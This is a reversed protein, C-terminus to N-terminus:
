GSLLTLVGDVEGLGEIGINGLADVDEGIDELVGLELLRGDLTLAVHDETLGLLDLLLDLFNNEVVKVGGSELALGQAAGDETGALVDTVNGAGLEGVVDLAVVSGVAHDQDSRTTNRMLLEDLKSVLVERTQRGLTGLVLGVNEGLLLGVENARVDTDAIVGEASGVNGEGNLTDAPVVVVVESSKNGLSNDAVVVLSHAVSRMLAALKATEDVLVLEGVAEHAERRAVAVGTEPTDVEGGVLNGADVIENVEGDAFPHAQAGVDGRGLNLAGLGLQLSGDKQGEVAGSGDSLVNTALEDGGAAAHGRSLNLAHNIGDRLLVDNVEGVALKPVLVNGDGSDAVDLGQEIVLTQAVRHLWEM